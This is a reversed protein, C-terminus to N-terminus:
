EVLIEFDTTRNRYVMICHRDFLSMVPLFSEATCGGVNVKYDIFSVISEALYSKFRTRDCIYLKSM